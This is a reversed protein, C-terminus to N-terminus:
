GIIIRQLVCSRPRQPNSVKLAISASTYMMLQRGHCCRLHQVLYDPASLIALHSPPQALQERKRCLPSLILSCAHLANAMKPEVGTSAGDRMCGELVVWMYRLTTYMLPLM